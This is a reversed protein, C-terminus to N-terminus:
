QNIWVKLLGLNDRRHHWLFYTLARFNKGDSTKGKIIKLGKLLKNDIKIKFETESNLSFNM